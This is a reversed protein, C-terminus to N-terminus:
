RFPDIVIMPFYHGPGTRVFSRGGACEYTVSYSKVDGVTSRSHSGAICVYIVTGAVQIGARDRQGGQGGTGPSGEDTWRGLDDRPEGPNFNYKSEISEYLAWLESGPSAFRRWDPRIFRHADHRLWRKREYDLAAPHISPM